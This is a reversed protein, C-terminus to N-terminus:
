LKGLHRAEFFSPLDLSGINDGEDANCIGSTVTGHEKVCFVQHFGGLTWGVLSRGLRRDQECSYVWQVSVQNAIRPFIAPNSGM